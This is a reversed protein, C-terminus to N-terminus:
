KVAVMLHRYPTVAWTVYPGSPDPDANKPYADYFGQDAGVIMVHPRHRDLSEMADAQARVFRHQQRRLRRRRRRGREMWAHLSDIAATDMCM